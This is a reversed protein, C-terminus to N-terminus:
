SHEQVPYLTHKGASGCWGSEQQVTLISIWNIRLRNETTPFLCDYRTVIFYDTVIITINMLFM